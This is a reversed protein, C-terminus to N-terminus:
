LGGRVIILGGEVKGELEKEIIVKRKGVEGVVMEYSWKGLICELVGMRFM